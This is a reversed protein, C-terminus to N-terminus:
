NSNMQESLLALFIFPTIIVVSLDTWSVQHYKNWADILSSGHSNLQQVLLIFFLYAFWKPRKLLGYICFTNIVVFAAHRWKPADNVHHFLGVIHYIAAIAFLAAFFWFIYKKM